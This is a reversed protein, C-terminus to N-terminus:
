GQHQIILSVGFFRFNCYVDVDLELKLKNKGNLELTPKDEVHKVTIHFAIPVVHAGDTVKLNIVDSESDTNM